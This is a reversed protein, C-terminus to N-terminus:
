YRLADGAVGKALRAVASPVGDAVESALMGPAGYNAAVLDGALGHIYVATAAARFPDGEVALLAGTIGSLVDGMGATAMAANGSNNFALRKGNAIITAAGKLVLTAQPHHAAFARSSELRVSQIDAAESGMLRGMEGPHPTFVVAGRGRSQRSSLVKGLDERRNALVNLADADIVLRAGADELLGWVLEEAGDHIGLGPGVAVCDFNAISQQLHSWCGSAVFGSGDDAVELMMAEAFAGDMFGSLAAPCAVTVLGAGARLAGRAALLPAGTKGTSGGVILVHGQRGKHTTARRRPLWSRTTGRDIVQGTAELGAEAHDALGIDAVCVRGSYDPGEGVFLGPKAGGLTITETAVVARGLPAGSDADLGSPIDVSSVPVRALNIREILEAMPGEVARDLGTGLLADVIRDYRGSVSSLLEMCSEAGVVSGGSAKWRELNTACDSDPSPPKPFIVTDVRWGNRALQRAIVFGDGGNNGPGAVILASPETRSATEILHDAIRTGATEMLELSDVGTRITFEDLARVTERSFVPTFDAALM